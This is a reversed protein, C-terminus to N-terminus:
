EHAPQSLKPHSLPPLRLLIIQGDWHLRQFSPPMKTTLVQIVKTQWTPVQTLFHSRNLLDRTSYDNFHLTLKIPVPNESLTGILIPLHNADLVTNSQWLKLIIERDAAQRSLILVPNHKLYLQPLLRLM